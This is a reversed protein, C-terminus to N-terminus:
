CLWVAEFVEEEREEKGIIGTDTSTMLIIKSFEGGAM